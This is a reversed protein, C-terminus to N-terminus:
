RRGGGARRLETVYNMAWKPAQRTAKTFTEMDPSDWAFPLAALAAALVRAHSPFRIDRLIVAGIRAHSVAWHKRKTTDDSDLSEHAVLEGYQYAKVTYPTGRFREFLGADPVTWTIADRKM